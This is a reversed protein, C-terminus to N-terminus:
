CFGPWEDGADGHERGGVRDMADVEEETMAPSSKTPMSSPLDVVSCWRKRGMPRSVDVDDVGVLRFSNIVFETLELIQEVLFLVIQLENTQIKLVVTGSALQRNHLDGHLLTDQYEVVCPVPEDNTISTDPIILNGIQLNFQM